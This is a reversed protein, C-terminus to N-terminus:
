RVRHEQRYASANYEKYMEQVEVQSENVTDFVFVCKFDSEGGSAHLLEYHEGLLKVDFTSINENGLDHWQIADRHKNVHIYSWRNVMIPIDELIHTSMTDSVGEKYVMKQSHKAMANSALHLCSTNETYSFRATMTRNNLALSGQSQAWKSAPTTSPDVFPEDLVQNSSYNLISHIIHNNFNSLDRNMGPVYFGWHRNSGSTTAATGVVSVRYDSDISYTYTTVTEGGYSRGVTETMQNTIETMLANMEWYGPALTFSFVRSESNTVSHEVWSFTNNGEHINYGNNGKSFSVLGARSVNKIPNHLHVTFDNSAENVSRNRSDVYVYHLVM